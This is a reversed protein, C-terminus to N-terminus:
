DEGRDRYEEGPWDRGTVFWREVESEGAAFGAVLLPRRSGAFHAHLTALLADRDQTDGEARHAPSLWRLRPLVRYHRQDDLLQSLEELRHWSRLEQDPHWAAPPSVASGGHRFLYGRLEILPQPPTHIGLGALVSAAAPDQGLRSQHGSLRALKRDLRDQSNPGLWALGSGGQAPWALYYKVALELHCYTHRQRCFYLCDFEGLTRAEDRVPVNHAIFDVEPDAALFFHWLAEFYLGLRSTVHAQLHELLPAPQADLGRLWDRRAETLAFGPNDTGPLIGPLRPTQLLPAGLCSWTLDRVAPHKLQLDPM